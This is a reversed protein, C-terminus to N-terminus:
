KTVNLLDQLSQNINNKAMIALTETALLLTEHQFLDPYEFVSGDQRATEELWDSTM